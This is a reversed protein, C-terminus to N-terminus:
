GGLLVHNPLTVNPGLEFSANSFFLSGIAYFRRGAFDVTTQSEVKDHESKALGFSREKRLHLQSSSARTSNRNIKLTSPVAAM